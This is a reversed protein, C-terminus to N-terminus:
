NVLAATSGYLLRNAAQLVEAVTIHAMCEPPDTHRPCASFVGCPSCWLGARLVVHRTQDGWPGFRGADGPGFLHLSPAGQSVALHLPGSDVGMVLAARKLLAALQGVSTQGVLTLPSQHLAQVIVQILPEEGRGGTLLLRGAGQEMLCNCVAAWHEPQWLKAAGGTGPHLIILRESSAVGQQTLWAAAWATDEPAPSFRLAPLRDLAQQEGSSHLRGVVDLAQQTVHQGPHWPLAHTLFPVCEPVAHGVRQPIGALLALAGGWWHDDRLLLAADFRGARLLMAARLLLLYPAALSRPAAARQFGPFPLTLVGDIDPNRELVAASWPGVLLMISAQPHQQRLLRLAPTSLLVDGLHDPKIVLIRRLPAGAQRSLAFRRGLFALLHLGARRLSRRLLHLGTFM